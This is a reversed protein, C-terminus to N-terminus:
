HNNFSNDALVNTPPEKKKDGKIKLTKPMDEEPVCNEQLPNTTM